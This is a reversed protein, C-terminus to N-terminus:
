GVQGAVLQRAVSANGFHAYLLTSPGDAKLGNGAGLMASSADGSAAHATTVLALAVLTIL